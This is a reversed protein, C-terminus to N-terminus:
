PCWFTLKEEPTTKSFDGEGSMNTKDISSLGCSGGILTRCRSMYLIRLSGSLARCGEPKEGKAWFDADDAFKEAAHEDHYQNWLTEMEPYEQCYAAFMVNWAAEVDAKEEAIKAFNEYVEDRYM